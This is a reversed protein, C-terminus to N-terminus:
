TVRLAADDGEKRPVLRKLQHTDPDDFSLMRLIETTNTVVTALQIQMTSRYINDM